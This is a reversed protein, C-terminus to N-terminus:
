FSTMLTPELGFSQHELLFPFNPYACLSHWTHVFASIQTINRYALSSLFQWCVVPLWLPMYSILVRPEWFSGVGHVSQDQLKWGGSSCSSWNTFPLWLTFPLEIFNSNEGWIHSISELIWKEHQNMNLRGLKPVTPVSTADEWHHCCFSTSRLCSLTSLNGQSSKFQSKRNSKM